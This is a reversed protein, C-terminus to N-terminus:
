SLMRHMLMCSCREFDRKSDEEWKVLYAFQQKRGLLQLAVSPFECICDCMKEELVEGTNLDM